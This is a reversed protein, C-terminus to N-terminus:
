LLITLVDERHSVYLLGVRVDEEYSVDKGHCMCCASGFMKRM